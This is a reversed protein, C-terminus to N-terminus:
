EWNGIVEESSNIYQSTFAYGEKKAMMMVDQGKKATIVAVYEGSLEDVVGETVENTEMNKLEISM